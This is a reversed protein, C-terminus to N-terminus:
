YNSLEQVRELAMNLNSEMKEQIHVGRQKNDGLLKIELGLLFEEIGLQYFKIAEDKKAKFFLKLNIFKRPFLAQKNNVQHKTLPCHKALTIPAM